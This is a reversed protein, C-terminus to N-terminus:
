GGSQGETRHASAYWSAFEADAMLLAVVEQHSIQDSRIIESLMRFRELKKREEATLAAKMEHTKMVMEGIEIALTTRVDM